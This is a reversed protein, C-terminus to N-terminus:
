GYGLDEIQEESLGFFHAIEHILTIEIETVLEEESQCYAELPEQFLYIVDPYLPPEAPRRETLPEGEYYGFLDGDQSLGLDLLLQRDPRPQVTIVVNEMLRIISVPLRALAREVVADFAQPSLQPRRQESM